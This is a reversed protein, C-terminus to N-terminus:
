DSDASTTSEAADDDGGKRRRTRRGKPAEDLGPADGKPAEQQAARETMAARRSPKRKMPVNKVLGMKSLHNAIPRPFDTPDVLLARAAEEEAAPVKELMKEMNWCLIKEYNRDLDVVHGANGRANLRTLEPSMVRNPWLLIKGKRVRWLGTMHKIKLTRIAM